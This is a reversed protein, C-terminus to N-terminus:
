HGIGSEPCGVGPENVQYNKKHDKGVTKMERGFQAFAKHLSSYLKEGTLSKTESLAELHDAAEDNSLLAYHIFRISDQKYVRRGYDGVITSPVSKSLRRIQQAEEFQEFKPLLLTMELIKRAEQWIEPKKYSM